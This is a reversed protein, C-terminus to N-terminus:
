ATRPEFGLAPKREMLSKCLDLLTTGQASRWAQAVNRVERGESERHKQRRSGGSIGMTPRFFDYHTLAKV